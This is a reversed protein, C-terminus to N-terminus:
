LWSVTLLHLDRKPNTTSAFAVTGDILSGAMGGPIVTRHRGPHDPSPHYLISFPPDIDPFSSPFFLPQHLRGIPDRSQTPSLGLPTHASEADSRVVFRHDPFNFCIVTEYDRFTTKM